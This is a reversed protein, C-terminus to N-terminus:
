SIASQIWGIAMKDDEVCWIERSSPLQSCNVQDLMKLAVM